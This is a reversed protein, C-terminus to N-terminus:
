HQITHARPTVHLLMGEYAALNIEQNIPYEM